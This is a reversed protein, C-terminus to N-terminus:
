DDEELWTLPYRGWRRVAACIAHLVEEPVQWPIEGHNDSLVFGGGKGAAAVASKVQRETESADWHRMVIGNLNGILALRGRSAAKVEALNEECSVGIGATGTEALSDIVPLCRGSALHTACPGNIRALASRAVKFGTERYIEPPTITSSALPDFYTVATAGAEFQANAWAVGFATNVKMLQWFREPQEYILEIYRNFGMQMVPLSFPSVMVGLVPIEDGVKVKLLRIIELTRLLSSCKDLVPPELGDIQEASFVPSGSNPPGDERFITQGGWAEYEVAGYMFGALADHGYKRHLRLQGEVVNEPRAYYEKLGMRLEKAGHMTVTLLLPVRDPEKFGLATFVRERSCMEPM